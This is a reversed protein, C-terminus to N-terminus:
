IRLTKGSGKRKIGPTKSCEGAEASAADAGNEKAPLVTQMAEDLVHKAAINKQRAEIIDEILHSFSGKAKGRWIAKHVNALLSPPTDRFVYMDLVTIGQSSEALKDFFYQELVNDRTWNCLTHHLCWNQIWLRPLHAVPSESIQLDCTDDLCALDKSGIVLGEIWANLMEYHRERTDDLAETEGEDAGCSRTSQAVMEQRIHKDLRDASQPTLM